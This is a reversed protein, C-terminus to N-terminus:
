EVGKSEEFFVFAAALTVAPNLDDRAGRVITHRDAPWASAGSPVVAAPAHNAQGATSEFSTRTGEESAM